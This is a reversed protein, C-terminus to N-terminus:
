TMFQGFPSNVDAGSTLITQVLEKSGNEIAYQSDYTLLRTSLHCRQRSVRLPNSNEPTVDYPSAQGTRFLERATIVDGMKCARMIQSDEHVVNKVTFGGGGFSLGLGALPFRRLRLDLCLMKLGLFSQRASFDYTTQYDNGYISLVAEIGLFRIWSKELFVLSQWFSIGDHPARTVLGNLVVNEQPKGQKAISEVSERIAAVDQLLGVNSTIALSSATAIAKRSLNTIRSCM